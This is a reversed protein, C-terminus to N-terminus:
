KQVLYQVIERRVEKVDVSPKYPIIEIPFANYNLWPHTLIESMKIRKGPSPELLRCLLDQCDPSLFPPVEFGKLICAHLKALNKSRNEVKFPLRGALMAYM